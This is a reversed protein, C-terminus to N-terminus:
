WRAVPRQPVVAGRYSPPCTPGWASGRWCRVRPPAGPRQWAEVSSRVLERYYKTARFIRLESSPAPSAALDVLEHVRRGDEAGAQEAAAHWRSTWRATFLIPLAFLVVPLLRWDTSVALVVTIAVTVAQGLSTILMSLASGLVGRQERLIHYKDLFDKSSTTDITPVASIMRLVDRDFHHGVREMQNLRATTGLIEMLWQTVMSLALLGSVILLARRDRVTAAPVLAALLLPQLAGIAVGLLDAAALFTGAISVKLSAGVVAIYPRLLLRVRDASM